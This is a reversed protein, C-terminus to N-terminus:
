GVLRVNRAAVTRAAKDIWIAGAGPFESLLGDARARDLIMLPKTLGDAEMGTAAAVAVSSLERPSYGTCPDFIHHYTFDATFTTAYDGSTALFRGDMEVAAIVERPRRPHQVGLTWPCGPQRMGEAGMEGCDVLADHIGHARLAALALDTAYGQAVGNLTISMGPRGLAIRRASVELATWDVLRRAALVEGPSPLRGERQRSSFLRWLPQVTVDFAGGSLSALRQSFELVRVLDPHPRALVGRANLQGVQSEPRYVTMLRDIRRAEGLADAIAARAVRADDHVAAISVTTGFALAVDRLLARGDPMREEDGPGGAGGPPGMGLRARWLAAAAATGALMSGAIFVRRRM